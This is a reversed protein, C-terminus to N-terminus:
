GISFLEVDPATKKILGQLVNGPGIETFQTAGDALMNLMIDLWRVPSTLQMLLNSKIRDPDTNPLADVNQYIPCLPISFPTKDIAGALEVRAPEILPSHFAGGVQLMVCKRVGAEKLANVVSEVAPTEGSIVTQQDSNYNAPVVIGPTERCIRELLDSDAGIIAAMSGSNLDCAKQMAQARLAVLRLGDEFSLAGSVVLASFEGLSHGAVMDPTPLDSCLAGVVSHLFVAPQTVKTARLAEADGEFMIDTIRFGLIQNAQEFLAKARPSTSYLEKGMGPYQSGQGPFVYAKM